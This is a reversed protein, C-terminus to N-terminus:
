SIFKFENLIKTFDKEEDTANLYALNENLEQVNKVGPITTSVGIQSLIYSLCKIPTIEQPMKRKLSIGGTHYKAINVIRNRQLLNGKAFPKIAVFGVGEKSCTGLLEKRGQLSHNIFNIQNMIMDFHGTRAAKQGISVDHTSLGIFNVKGELQLKKALDLLGGSAIISEYENEKVYQINIIDIYGKGFKSLTKLFTKECVNINRIRQPRGEKEVSGLHCTLIINDRYDKIATSINDIYKSVNFVIDFYNIGYKIAERIVSIVTSRPQKYLYETGLGIESVKLNTRGLTRYKM